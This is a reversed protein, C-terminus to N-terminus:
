TIFRTSSCPEVQSNSPGPTDGVGAYALHQSDQRMTDEHACSQLAAESDHEHLGANGAPQTGNGDHQMGPLPSTPMQTLSQTLRLTQTAGTYAVTSAQSQQQATSSPCHMDHAHYQHPDAAEPQRQMSVVAVSEQQQHEGVSSASSPLARNHPAPSPLKRMALAEKSQQAQGVSTQVAHRNACAPQQGNGQPVAKVHQGTRGTQGSCPEAPQMEHEPMGEGQLSAAGALHMSREYGFSSQHQPDEHKAAHQMQVPDAPAASNVHAAEVQQLAPQQRALAHEAPALVQRPQGPMSHVHAAAQSLAAARSEAWTRVRQAAANSPKFIVRSAATSKLSSPTIEGKSRLQTLATLTWVAASSGRV